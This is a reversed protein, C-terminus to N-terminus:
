CVSQLEEEYFWCPPPWFLENCGQRLGRPNRRGTEMDFFVLGLAKTPDRQEGSGFMEDVREGDRYFHFTPTYRIHQTTQPCEDIHTLIQLLDQDTSAIKLNSHRNRNLVGAAAGKVGKKAKEEVEEM